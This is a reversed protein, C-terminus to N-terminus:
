ASILTMRRHIRESQGFVLQLDGQICKAGIMCRLSLMRVIIRERFFCTFDHITQLSTM